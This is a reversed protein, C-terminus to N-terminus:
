EKHYKARYNYKTEKDDNQRAEMEMPMTDYGIFILQVFYRLYYMILGMRKYQNWHILDHELIQSNGKFEKKIFIGFPPITMGRFPPVVWKVYYIKPKVISCSGVNPKANNYISSHLEATTSSEAATGDNTISNQM